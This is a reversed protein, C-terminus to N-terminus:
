GILHFREPRGEASAHFDPLASFRRVRVLARGANRSM